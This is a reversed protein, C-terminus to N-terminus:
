RIASPGEISRQCTRIALAHMESFIKLVGRYRYWWWTHIRGEESSPNTQLINGLVRWEEDTPMVSSLHVLDNTRARRGGHEACVQKSLQLFHWIQPCQESVLMIRIEYKELGERLVSLTEIKSMPNKSLVLKTETQMTDSKILM